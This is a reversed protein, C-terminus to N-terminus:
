SLAMKMPILFMIRSVAFYDCKKRPPFFFGREDLCFGLQYAVM